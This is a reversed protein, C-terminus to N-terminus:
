KIAHEDLKRYITRRSMGLLKAAKTKNGGARVLADRILAAEDTVRAARPAPLSPAAPALDAPLHDPLIVHGQCLIAAHELVHELERVNGPWPHSMLTDLAEQSITLPNREFRATLRGLFHEVLPSIDEKRERLPPLELHVVKLRYYLDERFRGERVLQALDRNTAAVIRVDVRIPTADGVREFVKEQLVRLLRLQMAPSVDGIEDLFITGGDAKQFRGDKDRLAGTFAGKVHGFLESELLTEPLAACNVAVFPKDARRGGRHLADAALEKGTGSEGTILVTTDVDSLAELLAYLRQMSASGGVLSLHSRRGSARRELHDLRTEDRAVLVAGDFGELQDLLPSTAAAIVRDPQGQRRCVFRQGEIPRRKVLTEELLKLCQHQCDEPCFLEQAEVKDKTIGCLTTAATNCAILRMGRDVTVIADKVSRFIAELNSRYQDKEKSVLHHRIAMRAVRVITEQKVPKPIYDYAGLRLAESATDIHPYGTVMVFPVDFGRLRAERLLDVGTWGGLVIDAFVLDFGAPLAALAEEYSSAIAVEYGQHELFCRFTYRLSEEDDVVLISYTM